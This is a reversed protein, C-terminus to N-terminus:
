KRRTKVEKQDEERTRGATQAQKQEILSIVEKLKELRKVMPRCQVAADTVRAIAVHLPIERDELVRIEGDIHEMFEELTRAYERLVTLYDQKWIRVDRELVQIRSRPEELQKATKVKARAIQTSM